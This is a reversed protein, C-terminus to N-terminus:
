RLTGPREPLGTLVARAADYTAQEDTNVSEADYDFQEHEYM